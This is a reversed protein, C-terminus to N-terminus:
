FLCFCLEKSILSKRRKKKKSIFTRLIGFFNSFMGSFAKLLLYEIGFFFGNLVVFNLMKDKDKQFLSIVMVILGLLGFGQAIWYMM